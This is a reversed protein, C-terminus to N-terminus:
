WSISIEVGPLQGAILEFPEDNNGGQQRDTSSAVVTNNPGTTLYLDLDKNAGGWQDDWRLQVIIRDGTQFSLSQSEDTGEWEHFTDSDSDAFAGYWTDRAANGASNLWVIGGTVAQDVAKLPSNTYPSTGDGPGDFGYGLSMNIVQVGESVMWQVINQLDGSTYPDGLYLTAEPAVDIIAEGVAAGHDSSTCDGINTTYNGNRDTYCRAGAVPQAIGRRAFRGMGDFGSDIIGVKVGHGQYGNNHWATALHGAVGQSTVNGYMPQPPIIERIRTVGSQQSLSGLLSVPVYAEIYDSGVNRATVGNDELFQEVGAVNGSLYITVLISGNQHVM